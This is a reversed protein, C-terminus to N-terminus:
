PVFLGDMKHSVSSVTGGSAKFEAWANYHPQQKHYDVAAPNEYMEYFIFSNPNDQSRLVDFRLCGPEKRSEQANTEIMKLFEEMRDPQIEAQVVVSFPLASRATSSMRKTLTPSTTALRSTFASASRTSATALLLLSSAILKM